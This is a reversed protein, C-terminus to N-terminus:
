QSSESPLSNSNVGRSVCIRFAINLHDVGPKWPEAGVQLSLKHIMRKGNASEMHLFAIIPLSADQFKALLALKERFAQVGGCVAVFRAHFNQCNECGKSAADELYEYTPHLILYGTQNWGSKTPVYECARTYIRDITLNSCSACIMNHFLFRGSHPCQKLFISPLPLSLITTSSIQSSENNTPSDDLRIRVPSWHSLHDIDPVRNCILKRGGFDTTLRLFSTYTLFSPGTGLEFGKM